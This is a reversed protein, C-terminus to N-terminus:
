DVVEGLGTTDGVANLADVLTGDLVVVGDTGVHLGDTTLYVLEFENDLVTEPGKGLVALQQKNSLTRADRTGVCM